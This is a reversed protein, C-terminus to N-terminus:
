SARGFFNSMDLTIEQKYTQKCEECMLDINPMAAETRVAIIREQIRNFTERECNSLFERIFEPETVLAEPTKIAGISCAMADTTIESLQKLSTSIAHLKDEETMESDGVVQMTKRQQWQKQNNENMERYTMPKFYIELDGFKLTQHYDPCKLQGLITRLDVARESRAGCHPCVTDFDMQHGYSAIRIAILVADLDISPMSWVDKINPVCSQVVDVVASGNLLADPTRYTIEDRATMPYVPLEGTPPVDIAGPPYFEGGSILSVHIAPQRFYARLPNNFNM